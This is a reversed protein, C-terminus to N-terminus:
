GDQCRALGQTISTFLNQVSGKLQELTSSQAEEINKLHKKCEAIRQDLVRELEVYRHDDRDDRQERLSKASLNLHTDLHENLRSYGSLELLKSSRKRMGNRLTSFSTPFAPPAIEFLSQLIDRIAQERAQQQHTASEAHTLVVLLHRELDPRRRKLERLFTTEIEELTGTRLNHVFLIVDANALGLWAQRDDEDCADIGPTDLYVRGGHELEQVQTTARVAKTEFFENELNGTLGNLLASKGANMLGCVAIRPLLALSASEELEQRLRAFEPDRHALRTLLNDDPVNRHTSTAPM